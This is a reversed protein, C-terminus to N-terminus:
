ELALDDVSETGSHQLVKPPPSLKVDRPKLNTLPPHGLYQQHNLNPSTCACPLLHMPHEQQESKTLRMHMKDNLPIEAMYGM